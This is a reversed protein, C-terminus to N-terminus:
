SEGVSRVVDINLWLTKATPKSIDAVRPKDIGVESFSQSFGVVRALTHSEGCWEWLRELSGSLGM